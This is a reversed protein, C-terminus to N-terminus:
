IFFRLKKKSWIPGAYSVGVRPARQIIFQSNHIKGSDEIWLGIRRSAIKNNFNKDIKLQKTIRAPGSIGEVGRILIAAPYNKPGTVINLMWHIGYTFYVYWRGAKGFMPANRKTKGRSAHSARDKFGDYAEVETIMFRIIKGRIHRMLYKGLLDKAVILTPREFFKRKLTKM